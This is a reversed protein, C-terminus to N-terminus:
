RGGDWSGYWAIAARMLVREGRERVSEDEGGGRGMVEGVCGGWTVETGGGGFAFVAPISRRLSSTCSWCCVIENSTDSFDPRAALRSRSSPTSARANRGKKRLGVRLLFAVSYCSANCALLLAARLKFFALPCRLYKLTPYVLQLVFERLRPLPELSKSCPLLRDILPQFLSHTALM